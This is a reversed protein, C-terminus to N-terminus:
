ALFDRNRVESQNIEIKYLVETDLHGFNLTGLVGKSADLQSNQAFDVLRDLTHLVSLELSINVDLGVNDFIEPCSKVRM